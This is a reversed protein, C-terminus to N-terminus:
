LSKVNCAPVRGNLKSSRTAKLRALLTEFALAAFSKSLMVAIYERLGLQRLRRHFLSQPLFLARVNPYKMVSTIFRDRDLVPHVFKHEQLRPLMREPLPPWWDYMDVDGFASLQVLKLGLRNGEMPIFAECFPWARQSGQRYHVAQKLRSESLADLARGSFISLCILHHMAEAEPYVGRISDMWHWDPPTPRRELSVVDANDEAVRNVLEDAWLHINVDYELQLYFSFSPFAKRFLYLPVDGSFWQISGEGASVFGARLVEDDTLRFVNTTPIGAVHGRTEDVLVFVVGRGVRQQLRKFQRDVFADWFHTRFIVAYPQGDVKFSLHEHHEANGVDLASSGKAVLSDM